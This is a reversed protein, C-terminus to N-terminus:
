SVYVGQDISKQQSFPNVLRVPNSGMQATKTCTQPSSRIPLITKYQRKTTIIQERAEVAKARRAALIAKLEAIGQHDVSYVMFRRGERMVQKREL